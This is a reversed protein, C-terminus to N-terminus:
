ELVYCLKALDMNKAANSVGDYDHESKYVFLFHVLLYDAGGVDDMYFYTKEFANKTPMEKRVCGFIVKIANSKYEDCCKGGSCNKLKGSETKRKKSDSIEKREM